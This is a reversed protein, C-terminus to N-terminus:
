FRAQVHGTVGIIKPQHEEGIKHQNLTARIQTAAEIGDMVPMNFDLFIIKYHIDYALSEQIMDLAEKGNLCFDVHHNVDIGYKSMMSSMSANCFEEDDVVM